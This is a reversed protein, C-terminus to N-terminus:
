SSVDHEVPAPAATDLPSEFREALLQSADTDTGIGERHEAQEGRGHGGHQDRGSVMTPGHDAHDHGADAVQEVARDCPPAPLRARTTREEVRDGVAGRVGQQEAAACPPECALRRVQRDERERNGGEGHDDRVLPRPGFGETDVRAAAQHLAGFPEHEEADAEGEADEHRHQPHHEHEGRERGRIPEPAHVLLGITRLARARRDAPRTIRVAFGPRTARSTPPARTSPSRRRRCRDARRLGRGYDRV